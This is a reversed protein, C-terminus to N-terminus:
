FFLQTLKKSFNLYTIEVVKIIVKDLTSNFYASLLSVTVAILTAHKAVSFCLVRLKYNM